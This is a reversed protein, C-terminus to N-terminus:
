DEDVFKERHLDWDPEPKTSYGYLLGGYTDPNGPVMKGQEYLRAIAEQYFVEVGHERAQQVWYAFCPREFAHASGPKTDRLEFGWLEIREFGDFIAWAILWCVSCTFYRNPGKATAFKAQIEKRPFAKSTPIETDVKQLYVPRGQAKDRYYMWGSPYCGVIHAKSHLNVWRTWEDEISRKLRMKVTKPGNALWVEVGSDSRPPADRLNRATGYIRVTKPM